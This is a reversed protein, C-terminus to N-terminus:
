EDGKDNNNKEQEKIKRDEYLWGAVFSIGLVIGIIGLPPFVILLFLAIVIITIIVNPTM